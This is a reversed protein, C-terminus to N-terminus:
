ADDGTGPSVLQALRPGISHLPLIGGVVGARAAEGPMGYIVSSAEDQALVLAGAAHAQRLGGVGDSGMGTLIVALLSDGYAMSASRFLHSASPRFGEEPPTAALEVAGDPTVGLHQDDPALYVVGPLLREGAEAVKVRLGTASDLWRALVTVFGRSLHQVVLVPAPFNPPLAGLVTQLAVPGGTSAAVAVLRVAARPAPTPASPADAQRRGSWRRVVKVDAMAKVMAVLQARDEEFRPSVPSEPKAVAALAGAETARLSLAIDDPRVSSSVVVIPTPARVMIERTAELGDVRPMHVDMTVLDPRLRLTMEVAESGDAAEGVVRIAPDSELIAVLLARQARSDEAVVVRIM